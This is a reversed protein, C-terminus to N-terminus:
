KKVYGGRVSIFQGWRKVLADLGAAYFNKVTTEAEGAGARADDAVKSRGVSFEEVWNHFAQRSLFKGGLCSVNWKSHGKCQTIKGVSFVCLLVSSKPLVCGWANDGNQSSFSAESCTCASRSEPSDHPQVTSSGLSVFLVGLVDM